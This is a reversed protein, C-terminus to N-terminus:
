IIDYDTLDDLIATTEELDDSSIMLRDGSDWDYNIGAKDLAGEIKYIDTENSLLIREM